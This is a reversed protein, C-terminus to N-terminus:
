FDYIHDIEITKDLLNKYISSLDRVNVEVHIREKETKEGNEDWTYESNRLIEKMKMEKIKEATMYGKDTVFSIAVSDNGAIDLVAFNSYRARDEINRFPDEAINMEAILARTFPQYHAASIIKYDTHSALDSDYVVVASVMDDQVGFSQHTAYAIVKAYATKIGIELSLMCLREGKRIYQGFSTEMKDSEVKNDGFWLLSLYKSYPFDYWPYDYLFQAYDTNMQAAVKEEYVKNDGRIYEFIRGLTNEYVGKIALEVTYSIGIIRLVKMYESNDHTSSAVLLKVADYQRWYEGIAGFYHFDSPAANELTRAYEASNYVIFWEPIGTYADDHPRKYEQISKINENGKSVEEEVVKLILAKEKQKEIKEEDYYTDWLNNTFKDDKDYLKKIDFYELAHPYAAYFQEDTAHPQYPLYYAGGVNLVEDIMYRTWKAVQERAKEDTDQKYYVVFAFSESRAWALKAGTDPLAHRISVNIVNVNNDNFVKKMRPVFEDFKEVPVFYEQLVYSSKDRKEPELEAIDYSAEYNRTHVPQDGLYLLPDIIYERLWRGKPWESMILWAIREIWYDQARPILRDVTTPEKGTEVWSVARVKEFDPPYMDGNHFIVKKDDRITNMFYDHYESTKMLLPAREVHVNDALALTVESIVGIGGMGGIASYFIDAHEEPTAHVVSGDALIITFGKVSLIIPGLGIYRGHVNVSLSGGVTFNSYTQMIKVSLNYPDIYDQIDRWRIGAQVTIEKSSTSFSIIKNYERMDIQVAKTSATQGGMSNRGGGISVHDNNKIADIIEEQTHVVVIGKTQIPYLETVDAVINNKTNEKERLAKDPMPNTYTALAMVIYAFVIGMLVAFFLKKVNKKNVYKKYLKKVLLIFLSFVKQIVKKIKNKVSTKM